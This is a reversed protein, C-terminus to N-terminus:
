RRALRQQADRYHSRFRTIAFRLATVFIGLMILTFLFGFVTDWSMLWAIIDVVAIAWFIRHSHTAWFEGLITTAPRITRRYIAGARELVLLSPRVRENPVSHSAAEALKEELKELKTVLGAQAQKVHEIEEQTDKLQQELIAVTLRKSGSGSRPQNSPPSDSTQRSTPRVM